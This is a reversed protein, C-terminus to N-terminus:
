SRQHVDRIFDAMADIATNLHDELRFGSRVRPKFSHDGDELWRIAIRASLPYSQVETPTGFPDRSGQLILTPTQLRELHAVRLKEPKGPPHFPYGMCILGLAAIEDAVMSAMRGGMSKGGVVLTKGGGLTEAVARWADLLIPQRDPPGSKGSARRRQMYPFEFRVTRIAREALGEAVLNMFASDMAAGAGHAFVFVLASDTPGNFLFPFEETM